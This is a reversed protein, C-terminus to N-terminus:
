KNTKRKVYKSGRTSSSNTKGMLSTVEQTENIESGLDAFIM